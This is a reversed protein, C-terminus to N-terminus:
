KNLYYIQTPHTQITARVDPDYMAVQYAGAADFVFKRQFTFSHNHSYFLCHRSHVTREYGALLTVLIDKQFRIFFGENKELHKVADDFVNLSYICTAVATFIYFSTMTSPYANNSTPSDFLWKGSLYQMAACFVPLVDLCYSNKFHAHETFLGAKSPSNRQTIEPFNCAGIYCDSRRKGHPCLSNSSGISETNLRANSSDSQSLSQSSLQSLCQFPPVLESLALGCQISYCDFCAIGPETGHACIHQRVIEDIVGFCLHCINAVAGHCCLHSEVLEAPKAEVFFFRYFREERVEKNGARWANFKLINARM